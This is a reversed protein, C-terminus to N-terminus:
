ALGEYIKAVTDIVIASRYRAAVRRRLEEGLRARLAPDRLLVELAVALSAADRPPVVLGAEGHGLIDGCQGVDTAVAARGAVGYEVLALPFGEAVSSLVGVDAHPLLEDVRTRQGLLTVSSGIGLEAARRRMQEIRADGGGVLLLHARPERRHLRCMAALLTEHDKEPLLNAVCVIRYGPMGPLADMGAAANHADPARVIFNPVYTVRTAPLGTRRQAWEALPQNVTIVHDIRGAIARYLRGPHQDVALRGFHVHWVVKVSPLLLAAAVATFVATGHAHLVQVGERRVYRVLRGLAVVDLTFRRNLALVPVDAKVLSQLPGARRTVCLHPAFRDRPLENVFNVAVREAGGISLTDTLHMVVMRAGGPVRERPADYVAGASQQESTM